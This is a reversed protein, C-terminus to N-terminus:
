RNVTAMIGKPLLEVPAESELLGETEMVDLVAEALKQSVKRATESRMLGVREQPGEPVLHRAVTGPMDTTGADRTFSAMKSTGSVATRTM